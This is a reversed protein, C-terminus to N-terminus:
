SGSGGKQRGELEELRSQVAMAHAELGELRALKVYDKGSSAIETKSVETVFIRKVFDWVGLGSSFRATSFTPLVHNPGIGYDGIPESSYPGVFVSGANRVGALLQYPNRTVIELHEPAVINAIESARDINRVVAIFSNKAISVRARSRNPEPLAELFTELHEVVSAALSESDTLLVAMADEDHEAQSLLDWAIFRAPATEDAIVLVESPGAISDIGCDDSVLKKAMTVYKNGPGVIKDVRPVTETGYALAAVAHAGGMKYVERVGLKRCAALVLQSAQGTEDPPTVVVIRRVGALLAPVVCMVLTSVYVAKGGPVYVGVSDLPVTLYGLLSGNENVTWKPTELQLRHFAELRRIFRELLGDLEQDLPANELEEDSVRLHSLRIPCKEYRAIYRELATDGESRVDEVIQRVITEVDGFDRRRSGLLSAIERDSPDVLLKVGSKREM